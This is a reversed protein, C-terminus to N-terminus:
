QLLIPRIYNLWPYGCSFSKKWARDFMGFSLNNKSFSDEDSEPRALQREWM